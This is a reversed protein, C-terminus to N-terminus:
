AAKLVTKSTLEGKEACRLLSLMTPAALMRLVYDSVNIIELWVKLTPTECDPSLQRRKDRAERLTRFIFDQYEDLAPALGYVVCASILRNGNYTFADEMVDELDDQVERIVDLVDLATPDALSLGERSALNDLFNRLLGVDCRKLGYFEDIPVDAVPFGRRTAIEIRQYSQIVELGKIVADNHPLMEAASRIRRWHSDLITKEIVWNEEGYYDLEFIAAQLALLQEWCDQTREVSLDLALLSSWIGRKVLLERAKSFGRMGLAQAEHVSALRKALGRSAKAANTIIM